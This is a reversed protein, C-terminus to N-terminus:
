NIVETIDALSVAFWEKADVLKGNGFKLSVELRKDAFVKHLCIEVSVVSLNQIEYTTFLSEDVDDINTIIKGCRTNDYCEM